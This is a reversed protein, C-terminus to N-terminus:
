RAAARAGSRASTLYTAILDEEGHDPAAQALRDRITAILPLDLERAEASEEM